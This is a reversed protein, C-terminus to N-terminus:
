KDPIITEYNKPVFLKDIKEQPVGMLVMPQVSVRPKDLNMKKSLLDIFIAAAKMNKSNVSQQYVSYVVDPYVDMMWEWFYSITKTRFDSRKKFFQTYSKPLYNKREFDKATKPKRLDKPLAAWRCFAEYEKAYKTMIQEDKTNSPALQKTLYDPSPIPISKESVTKIPATRVKEEIEEEFGELEELSPLLQDEM